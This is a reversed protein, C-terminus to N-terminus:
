FDSTPSQGFSDDLLYDVIRTACARPDTLAGSRQMTVFLERLPFIDETSARIEAQMDTDVVGPALSCIRLNALGDQAVLRAHHDLAAKTAGYISLGPYASRGAGSSLHLIRRDSAAPSSAIVAGALMLPATVNLSIARSIAFTDHSSTIGLPQVTAANNVLLVIDSNSLFRALADGAIWNAAEQPSSLDLEVQDLAVGYQMELEVNKKRAIGLVSAGRSLFDAALYAGLGRTHGTIVAKMM